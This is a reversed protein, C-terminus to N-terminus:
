PVKSHRRALPDNQPKLEAPTPTPSAPPEKASRIEKLLSSLQRDVELVRQQATPDTPKIEALTVRLAALREKISRTAKANWTKESRTAEENANTAKM